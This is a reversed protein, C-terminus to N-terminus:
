DDYAPMAPIQEAATLQRSMKSAAEILTSAEAESDALHHYDDTTLKKLLKHLAQAEAASFMANVRLRPATQSDPSINM